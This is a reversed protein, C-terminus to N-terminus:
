SGIILFKWFAIWNRPRPFFASVRQRYDAYGAGFRELLEPEEVFTIWCWLGVPVLLGFIISGITGRWLGLALGVRMAGSYMPHRILSYLSSEVKRSEAPFYVYLMLANDAGFLKGARAWTIFGTVIFYLAIISVLPTFWGLPVRDGPMYGTHAIAAFIFPLGPVIHRTFARRYADDGWQTKYEKRRWFYQGTWFFGIMVIMVQGAYSWVEGYQDILIMLLTAFAFVGIASAFLWAPRMSNRWQPVHRFISDFDNM